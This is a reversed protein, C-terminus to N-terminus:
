FIEFFHFVDHSGATNFSIQSSLIKTKKSCKCAAQFIANKLCIHRPLTVDNVNDTFYFLISSESYAKAFNAIYGINIVKFITVPFFCEM